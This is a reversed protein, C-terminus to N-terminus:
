GVGVVEYWVVENDTPLVMGRGNGEVILHCLFGAISRIAHNWVM